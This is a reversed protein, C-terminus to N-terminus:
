KIYKMLVVYLAFISFGTMMGYVLYKNRGFQSNFYDSKEEIITNKLGPNNKSDEIENLIFKENDSYKLEPGIIQFVNKQFKIYDGYSEEWAAFKKPDLVKNIVDDSITKYCKDLMLSIIKDFTKEKDHKSDKLTATVEKNGVALSNRVLIM